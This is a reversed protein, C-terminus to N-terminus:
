LGPLKLGSLLGGMKNKMAEDVKRHADSLAAVILDQLM